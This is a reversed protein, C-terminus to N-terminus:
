SSQGHYGIFLVSVGWFAFLAIVLAALSLWAARRGRWGVSFRQHILAAYLMWTVLAWTETPDWRWYTGLTQKAWISGTLMGVTLLPFGISLCHHNLTDLAELSPLRRYLLGFRKRKITREQLLYMLGGIGALTFFGYAVLSFSAHVPLWLSQLQPSLAAGAQPLCFAAAMLSLALLSVFAGLNQVVYRWYFSLYGCGLAWAFFSLKEYGTVVPFYGVEFFRAMIASSHLVWALVFLFRAIRRLATKESFFFILHDATALLYVAFAGQFLLFSM